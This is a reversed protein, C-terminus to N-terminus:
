IFFRVMASFFFFQLDFSFSGLILTCVTALTFGMKLMYMIYNRDIPDCDLLLYGQIIFNPLTIVWMQITWGYYKGQLTKWAKRIPPDRSFGCCGLSITTRIITWFLFLYYIAAVINFIISVFSLATHNELLISLILSV